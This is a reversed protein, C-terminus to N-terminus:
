EAKAKGIAATLADYAHQDLAGFKMDRSVIRGDKGIVFVTRNAYPRATMMSGYENAITGASDSVLTFPFHADKAWSVHSALSDESIPLVVVDSGFIQAYEDRFKNLEHTCGSSRDLPYFALVVVHGRLQRLSVTHTGSQDAAQATFDPAMSGIEPASSQAAPMVSANMPTQAALCLPASLLAAATAVAALTSLKLTRTM